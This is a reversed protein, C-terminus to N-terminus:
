PCRTPPVDAETEQDEALYPPAAARQSARDLHCGACSGERYIRSDMDAQYNGVRLTVWMPYRPVFEAPDVFFNGACNSRTRFSRGAADMLIVDVKAAPESSGKRRYVTGAVSYAPAEGGEEHCVLCPQGPRHLPGPRVHASEPGLSAVIEARVPDDVCGAGLAAAAWAAALLMARAM